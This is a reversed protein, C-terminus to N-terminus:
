DKKRKLIIIEIIVSILLYTGIASVSIWLGCIVWLPTMLWILTDWTMFLGGLLILSGVIIWGVYLAIQRKSM